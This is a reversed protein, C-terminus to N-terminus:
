SVIHVPEAVSAAPTTAREDYPVTLLRNYHIVGTIDDVHDSFVPFRAHGTEAVADLAEAVTEDEIFRVRPRPTMVDAATRDGFEISRAVLEATSSVLTGEDGSRSVVALLEEATRASAVEEEPTFGLWRLIMNASGNLFRVLWGFLFMFVNQPRVVLDAVRMPQAIAWNKPVLEGFVMQTFTVVIFAGTTSIATVVGQSLGTLGFGEAFLVGVSPGTLFGAVLSTVTIGLQAGSLNTSTKTLAKDVIAATKDGADIRRRLDNRNVTLYSFEVAVFLANGLILLLLVILLILASWIM